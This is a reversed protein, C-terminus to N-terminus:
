QALAQLVADVRGYFLRGQFEVFRRRLRKLFHTLPFQARNVLTHNLYYVSVWYGLGTTAKQSLRDEM